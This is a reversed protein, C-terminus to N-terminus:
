KAHNKRRRVEIVLLVIASGALLAAMVMPAQSDGTKTPTTIVPVYPYVEPEEPEEEDPKSPYNREEVTFVWDVEGVRNAYDNDMTIPVELEVTLETAAGKALMGLLVNNKLGDLEDPSAEYILDKGNYVKMSLQSLFDEMTVVTEDRQGVVNTQDKGDANEFTESYSLPNNNKDHAVARMYINVYDCGKYDNKVVITQTLTDGPMVDKFNDFLDTDTYGSGPLFVFKEAGGEYIISSDAASVSMASTIFLIGALLLFVHKKALKNM